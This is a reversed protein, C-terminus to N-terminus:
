LWGQADDEPRAAPAAQALSMWVQLPLREVARRPAPRAVELQSGNAIIVGCEAPVEDAEAIPRGKADRGLVYWCAGAMALYAARKAPRKLDGLLDARSVKIEHVVPELYAEVSSRRISFVDPMAMCWAHDTAVAPAEAPHFADWLPAPENARSDTPLAVGEDGAFLARPLPVRLTLGRWALRGARGLEEAVRAVLAEHPSRSARNGAHAKALAQIGADTLRLTEFGETSCRRELLGAALLEVELMDACPWGASRHIARLRQHHRRTIAPLEPAKPASM